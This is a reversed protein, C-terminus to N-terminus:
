FCDDTTCINDCCYPTPESCDTFDMCEVINETCFHGFPGTICYPTLQNCDSDILCVTCFSHTEYWACYPESPDLCDVNYTCEYGPNPEDPGMPEDRSASNILNYVFYTIAYAALVIILGIVANVVRDRAQKAKEENGGATLWQFGSILIMIFFITGILGIVLAIIKGITTDLYTQSMVTDTQFGAREAIKKFYEQGINLEAQASSLPTSLLLVALIILLILKNPSKFM